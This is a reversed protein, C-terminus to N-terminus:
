ESGNDFCTCSQDVPYDAGCRQCRRHKDAYSPISCYETLQRMMIAIAGYRSAEWGTGRTLRELAVVLAHM